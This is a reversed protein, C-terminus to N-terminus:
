VPVIVPPFLYRAIGESKKATYEYYPDATVASGSFISAIMATLNGAM